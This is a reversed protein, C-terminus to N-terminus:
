FYPLESGTKHNYSLIEHLVKSPKWFYPLWHMPPDTRNPKKQTCTLKSEVHLLSGLDLLIGVELSKIPCYFLM